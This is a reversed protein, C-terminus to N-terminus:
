LVFADAIFIQVYSYLLVFKMVRMACFLDDDFGRHYEGTTRRVHPVFNIDILVLSAVIM